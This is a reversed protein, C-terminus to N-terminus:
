WYWILFNLDRIFRIYIIYDLYLNFGLGTFLTEFRNGEEGWLMIIYSRNFIDFASYCM